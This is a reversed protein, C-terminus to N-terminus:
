NDEVAALCELRRVAFFLLRQRTVPPLASQKREVLLQQRRLYLASNLFIRQPELSDSMNPHKNQFEIGGVGKGRAQGWPFGVM